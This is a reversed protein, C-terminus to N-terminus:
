FIDIKQRFTYTRASEGVVAYSSSRCLLPTGHTHAAGLQPQHARHPRPHAARGRPAHGRHRQGGGGALRHAGPDGGPRAGHGVAAAAADDRRCCM